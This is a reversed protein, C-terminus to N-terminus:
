IGTVPADQVDIPSAPRLRQLVRKQGDPAAPPLADRPDVAEIKAPLRVSLDKGNGHNM